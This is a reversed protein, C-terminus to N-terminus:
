FHCVGSEVIETTARAVPGEPDAGLTWLQLDEVTFEGVAIRENLRDLFCPRNINDFSRTDGAGLSVTVTTTTTSGDSLGEVMQEFAPDVEIDDGGSDSSDSACGAVLLLGVVLPALMRSRM